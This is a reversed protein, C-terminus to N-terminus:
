EQKLLRFPVGGVSGYYTFLGKMEIVSTQIIGQVIVTDGPLSSASADYKAYYVGNNM